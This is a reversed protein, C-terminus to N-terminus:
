APARPRLLQRVDRAGAHDPTISRAVPADGARGMGGAPERGDQRANADPVVRVIREDSVAAYGHVRLITQFVDWIEDNDLPRSSNVTVKGSVQPDVIISRGTMDAVASILTRIDADKFNLVYGDDANGQRASVASIASVLLAILAIAQLLRKM